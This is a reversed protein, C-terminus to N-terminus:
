NGVKETINRGFIIIIERTIDLFDSINKSVCHLFFAFLLKFTCQHLTIFANMYYYIIISVLVPMMIMVCNGGGGIKAM